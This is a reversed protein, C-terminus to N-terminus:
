VIYYCQKIDLKFKKTCRKLEQKYKDIHFKEYASDICYYYINTKSDTEQKIETDNSDTFKQFKICYLDM